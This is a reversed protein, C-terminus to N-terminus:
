MLMLPIGYREALELMMMYDPYGILERVERNYKNYYKIYFCEPPAGSELLNKWSEVSRLSYYEFQIICEYPIQALGRQYSVNPYKIELGDAYEMLYQKPSQSVLWAGWLLLGYVALLAAIFLLMLWHFSFITLLLFVLTAFGFVVSLVLLAPKFFKENLLIM